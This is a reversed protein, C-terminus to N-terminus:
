LGGVSAMCESYITDSFVRSVEEVDDTVPVEWAADIIDLATNLEWESAEEAENFGGIFHGAYDVHSIGTKMRDVFINESLESWMLRQQLKM